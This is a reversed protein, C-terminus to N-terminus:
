RYADLRERLEARYRQVNALKIEEYGRVVDPLSAIAVAENLRAPTLGAILRDVADVYETALRREVRRVEPWRFPDLVTGRLRKGRALARVGPEAWPGVSIKHGLGFRRLLPPHLRWTITGDAGAVDRAASLGDPDTMLRAVEYEDKYATLKYLNAAVTTTLQTSDARSAAEAAHVREVVDLWRAATAADQWATLEGALRTLRRTDEV